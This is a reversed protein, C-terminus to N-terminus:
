DEFLSKPKKPQEPEGLELYIQKGEKTIKTPFGYKNENVKLLIDKARKKNDVSYILHIKLLKEIADELSIKGNAETLVTKVSDYVNHKSKIQDEPELLESWNWTLQHAYHTQDYDCINCPFFNRDRRLFKKRIENMQEGEWVSKLTVDKVNGFTIRKAYDDCCLGIDGTSRIIMSLFPFGCPLKLPEKLEPKLWPICGAKNRIKNVDTLKGFDVKDVLLMNIKGIPPRFVVGNLDGYCSPPKIFKDEGYVKRINNYMNTLFERRKEDYINIEIGTLGANFLTIYEEPTKYYDGNTNFYLHTRPLIGRIMKIIEPLRKDGTPEGYLILEIRNSLHTPTTKEFNWEKLESAIKEILEMPMQIGKETDKHKPCFVCKRNCINSTEIVVHIPLKAM